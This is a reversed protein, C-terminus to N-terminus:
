NAAMFDNPTVEGKTFESIRQALAFSPKREGRELRCIMSKQCEVAEAMKAQSLGTRERYERLKSMTTM